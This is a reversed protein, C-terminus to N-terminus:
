DVPVFTGPAEQGLPDAAPYVVLCGAPVEFRQGDRVLTWPGPQGAPALLRATPTGPPLGAAPELLFAWDGSRLLLRGGIRWVASEIQIRDGKGLEQPAPPRKQLRIRSQGWLRSLRQFLLSM